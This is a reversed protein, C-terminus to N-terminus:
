SDLKEVFVRPSNSQCLTAEYEEVVCWQDYRHPNDAYWRDYRHPIDAYSNLCSSLTTPRSTFEISEGKTLLINFRDFTVMEKSFPSQGIWEVLGPRNEITTSGVMLLQRTFRTNTSPPLENFMRNVLAKYSICTGMVLTLGTRYEEHFRVPTKPWVQQSLKEEKLM